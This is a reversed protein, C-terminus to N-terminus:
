IQGGKEGNLLEIWSDQWGLINIEEVVRSITGQSVFLRAAIEKQNRIGKMWARIVAARIRTMSDFVLRNLYPKVDNEEVGIMMLGKAVRSLAQGMRTGLEIEPLDEIDMTRANREVPSRMRAAIDAMGAIYGLKVKPIDEAMDIIDAM